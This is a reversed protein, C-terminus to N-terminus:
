ALPEPAPILCIVLLTTSKPAESLGNSGASNSLSPKICNGVTTPPTTGTILTGPTSAPFNAKSPSVNAFM